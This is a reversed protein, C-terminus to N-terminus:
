ANPGKTILLAGREALQEAMPGLADTIAKRMYAKGRVGPHTVRRAIVKRGGVTFALAGADRPRIEYPAGPFEGRSGTGFEQAPGYPVTPGIVASTPSDFRVIISARLAGTKVPAYQMALRQTGAATDRIVDAAAQDISEGARRLDEALARLDASAATM